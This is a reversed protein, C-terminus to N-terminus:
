FDLKMPRDNAPDWELAVKEYRVVTTILIGTSWGFMLLGMMAILIENFGIVPSLVAGNYGLSTYSLGAFYLSPGLNTFLGLGRLYLGWLGIEVLHLILLEILIITIVLQGRLVKRRRSAFSFLRPRQAVILVTGGAHLVVTLVISALNWVITIFDLKM